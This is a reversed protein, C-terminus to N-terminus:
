NEEAVIKGIEEITLGTYKSIMETSVNDQYMTKAIEIKENKKGKVLGEEMGEDYGTERMDELDRKIAEEKDYYGIFNPDTSLDEVKRIAAMYVDDGKFKEEMEEITKCRLLKVMKQIENDVNYQKDIINELVLHISHYQETEIHGEEDRLKFNLIGRQTHYRNFNDFNIMIVSPYDESGSNTIESAISFAYSTNKEFITKSAHQNMELIIRNNDEIKIIIDATKGKESLIKKSLEGGQYEANRIKNADIGTLKSLCNSVMERAEVSRFLAKFLADNLMNVEKIIETQMVIGGEASGSYWLLFKKYFPHKQINTLRFCGIRFIQCNM